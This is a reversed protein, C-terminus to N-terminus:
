YSITGTMSVTTAHPGGGLDLLEERGTFSGTGSAEDFRGTGGTITYTGVMDNFSPVPMPAAYTGALNMYVKDEWYANWRVEILNPFLCGRDPGSLRFHEATPKLVSETDLQIGVPTSPHPTFPTGLIRVRKGYRALHEWELNTPQETLCLQVM